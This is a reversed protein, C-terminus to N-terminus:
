AVCLKRLTRLEVPGVLGFEQWDEETYYTPIDPGSAYSSVRDVNAKVANFLSTTVQVKLSNNGNVIFDSIDVVPNTPDVPPLQRENIWARLTHLVPGFDITAATQKGAALGFTTSYTGVGSAHEIGSINTWPTLDDLRGIHITTINGEVTDNNTSPAHSDITLDWPGLATISQDSSSVSPLVIRTGNGLVVWADSSDTVWAELCETRRVVEVNSSHSTAFAETQEQASSFAIITTQNSRLRISTTIGTSTPEYVTLLKQDGNWANLFYPNSDPSVSFSVNFTADAGSNYLYIYDSQTEADSRWFTYLGSADLSGQTNTRPVVGDAALTSASFEDIGIMHVTDYKLLEEMNKSVDHQGTTGVTINPITGVIYVPLGNRAFDVLAASAKPTIQTQNYIVMAKYGPGDPALVGDVVVAQDSVLNEPGLYEYTYGFANMDSEPYAGVGFRYPIGFYYFAIDVKPVGLQMIMSNRASYLMLDDLHAWAPQRFNWMESFKYQFPTFGPWNTGVYEGGYAYGHIVMTNVGAAFSGDFLFKLAPIRVKYAEGRVAGVETSIVNRGALHAAGTFQRYQSISESFALSELEPVEVYPVAQTMDVPMNYGPQHSPKFSKSSTWNKYHELFELYGQTLATQYDQIYPGGDTDYEGLTYTVNYPPLSGGWSNAAHFLIPLYKNISYGHIAEFRSQLDSTWPLAAQMELSDEWAYEGVKELLSAIDDSLIHQDWFDTVKKAGSPSWHDVIWSGNGLATTANAVSACSRQNTYREYIGFIIWNGNGEPASWTINGQNTLHTLESLSTENLITTYFYGERLVDTVVKGAVVAVLDNAGWPELINMFGTIQNFETSPSPVPGTYTEGSQITISGYVLEKALGPTEITSPVGAGQHPGLSFDFVLGHAISANLAASFVDKFAETGFGYISWDTLAPGLGYNYFPFFELGGAGISAIHDVDNVVSQLPVSADPLWYRFKPRYQIPPSDFELVAGLSSQSPTAALGSVLVSLVLLQLAVM